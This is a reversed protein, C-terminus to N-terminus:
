RRNAPTVTGALVYFIHDEPNSHRGVGPTRPELWWESISYLSDTEEGEAFFIARMRGMEYKRGSHTPSGLAKQDSRGSYEYRDGDSDWRLSDTSLETPYRLL